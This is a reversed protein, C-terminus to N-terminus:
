ERALGRIRPRAGLREISERLHLAEELEVDSFYYFAGALIALVWHVHLAFSSLLLEISRYYVHLSKADGPALWSFFDIVNGMLYSDFFALSLRYLCVVLTGILIFRWLSRVSVAYLLGGLSEEGFYLQALWYGIFVPLPILLFRSPGFSDSFWLAATCLGLLGLAFSLSWRGGRAMRLSEPMERRLASFAVLVLGMLLLVGTSFVLPLKSFSLTELWSQGYTGDSGVDSQLRDWWEREATWYAGVAVCSALLAYGVLRAPQRFPMRLMDALVAGHYKIVTFAIPEAAMPAPERLESAEYHGRRAKYWPFVVFYGVVVILSLLIFGLRLGDPAETHRTLYGEFFAALLFVPVLGLFISFGQRASRQFAQRRTYTGPFLWGSGAVIGAAGAVIIASIELTGHIWITLFSPWFLDREIFFYQFVGVMIGNRMLIFVTGISTLVGSLVTMLAVLVNNAAIGVSMGLPPSDKYVAMPDGSEINAITMAVYEEGLIYRAFDPDIRSSVVGIAFALAFIGFSLWLAHRTEWLIRPLDNTWFSLAQGLPQRRGRRLRNFVRQALGNLYFHVSRNRYFTRAYALDDTIHVFMERLRDPDISPQSLYAEYEAWKDQNQRIFATERM